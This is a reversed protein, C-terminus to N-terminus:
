EYKTSIKQCIKNSSIKINGLTGSTNLCTLPTLMLVKIGKTTHTHIKQTVTKLQPLKNNNERRERTWQEYKDGQASVSDVECWRNILM